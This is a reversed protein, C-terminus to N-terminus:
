CPQPTCEGRFAHRNSVRVRFRKCGLYPSTKKVLETIGVHQLPFIRRRGFVECGFMAVFVEGTYIATRGRWPYLYTWVSLIARGM